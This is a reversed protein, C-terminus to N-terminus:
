VQYSASPVLTVRLRYESEYDYNYTVRLRYNGPTGLLLPSNQGYGSYNPYYDQLANGAPDLLTYHLQSAGPNGPVETALTLWDGAQATFSFFDADSTSSLNGRAYGSRIGSGAPDESLLA